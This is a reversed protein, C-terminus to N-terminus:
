FCVCVWSKLLSIFFNWFSESKMYVFDFYFFFPSRAVSLNVIHHSSHQFYVALWWLFLGKKKWETFPWHCEDRVREGFPDPHTHTHTNTRASSRWELSYERQEGSCYIEFNSDFRISLGFIGPYFLFHSVYFCLIYVFFIYTHTCHLGKWRMRLTFTFYSRLPSQWSYPVSQWFGIYVCM